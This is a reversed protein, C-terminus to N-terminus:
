YSHSVTRTMHSLEFDLIYNYGRHKFSKKISINRPQFTLEASQLPILSPCM